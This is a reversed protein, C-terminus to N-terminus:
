APTSSGVEPSGGAKAGWLGTIVPTLWLVWGFFYNKNFYYHQLTPTIGVELWGGVGRLKTGTLVGGSSIFHIRFHVEPIPFPRRPTLQSQNVADPCAETRAALTPVPSDPWHLKDVVSM